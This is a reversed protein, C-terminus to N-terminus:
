KKAADTLVTNAMEQILPSLVDEGDSSAKANLTNSLKSSQQGVAVLQYALTIEDKSKIQGTFNALSTMSATQAATSTAMTAATAAGIGKLAGAMPMISTAPGAMKMFKAFGGGGGHKVTVTSFLIYDCQKQQAEAQVQMPIHSDLAAVEVAPGNMYQVIANRLPTGYDMGSNSGQGLQAEPSVVGIRTKGAAKPGLAAPAPLPTGGTPAAGSIGRMATMGPRLGAAMQSFAANTMAMPNTAVPSTAPATAYSNGPMPQAVPAVGTSIASPAVQPMGYLEASSSVQRYGAPVDFLDPSLSQRSIDAVEVTMNVPQADESAATITEALAFGPKASGKTRVVVRDHCNEGQHIPAMPRVCAALQQGIDAYWGDLEFTQHVSSCAGPASDAQIKTRLHRAAYGFMQKREGTDTTTSTLTIKAGSQGAPMGMLLAAAENAEDSEPDPTVMYTQTQDNLTLTRKLDCQHLSVNGLGGPLSVVDRERADKLYTESTLNTGAASIKKTIKLDEAQALMWLSLMAATSGLTQLLNRRM